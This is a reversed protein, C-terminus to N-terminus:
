VWEATNRISYPSKGVLPSLLFALYKSLNYTPSGVFSVIPRLPMGEKHVKPLGYLRPTNGDTTNLHKFMAKDLKQKLPALLNKLKTETTKAPDDKLVAYTASDNLLRMLRSDYDSRDMIVTSNGKDAKLIVIDKDKRLDRLAARESKSLNDKPPKSSALIHSVKNRIGSKASEDLNYVSAEVEAIIESVPIEKPAIAFKLGKQLVSQEDDSLTRKSLNIVWKSKDVLMNNPRQGGQSRKLKEMKKRHTERTKCFVTNKYLKLDRQIHRWLRDSCTEKVTTSAKDIDSEFKKIKFHNDSIRLSLFKFGYSRALSEGAESKVPSKIRLSPPLIKSEKCQHNFFLHCRQKVLNESAVFMRRAHQFITKGCEQYVINLVSSYSPKIVNLNSM